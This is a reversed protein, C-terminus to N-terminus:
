SRGADLGSVQGLYECEVCIGLDQLVGAAADDALQQLTSLEVRRAMSNSRLQLRGIERM